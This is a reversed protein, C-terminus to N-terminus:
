DFYPQLAQQLDTPIRCPRLGEQKVFVLTTSAEHLLVDEESFIQYTFFVKMSPMKPISTRIRLLEDYRAAKIFKSQIELVPMLIGAKEYDTYNCDLARLAEVRGVEYFTAYNGHYVFGMQDTEAYRVRITYDHSYM